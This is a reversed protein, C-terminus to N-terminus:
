AEVTAKTQVEATAQAPEIAVVVEPKIMKPRGPKIEIGAAIKANLAAVRIQRASGEIVPRGRGVYKGEAAKKAREALKIHRSCGPVIPSGKQKEEAVVTTPAPETSETVPTEEMVPATTEEVIPAVIEEAAAKNNAKKKSM